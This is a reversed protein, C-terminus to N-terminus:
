VGQTSVSAGPFSPTVNGLNTGEALPATKDSPTCYGRLRSRRPDPGAKGCACTVAATCSRLCKSEVRGLEITFSTVSASSGRRGCGRGLRGTCSPRIASGISCRWCRPRSRRGGAPAVGSSFARGDLVDQRVEPLVAVPVSVAGGLLEERLQELPIATGPEADARAVRRAIEHAHWEPMPPPDGTALLSDWLRGLLEVRDAVSYQELPLTQLPAPM